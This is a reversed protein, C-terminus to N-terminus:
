RTAAVLASLAAALAAPDGPPVLFKELESGLVEPIGGVRSGIVPRGSALAELGARPCSENDVTPIVVVDAARMLAPMDSRLGLWHTRPPSRERLRQEYAEPSLHPPQNRVVGAVLLHSDGLPWHEAFAGFAELAVEIGKTPSLRGAYLVVVDEGSIGLGARVDDARGEAFRTLDVGNPIVTIREPDVDAAAYAARM